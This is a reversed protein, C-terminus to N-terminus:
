RTATDAALIALIALGNNFILAPVTPLIPLADNPAAAPPPVPAATACANSGFSFM